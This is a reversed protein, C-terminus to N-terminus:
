ALLDKLSYLGPGKQLLMHASDLAGSAFTQRSLAEHCLEIKEDGSSFVIQHKGVVAGQRISQIQVPQKCISALALATGSPADKKHVHHTETMHISFNKKLKESLIEVAHLCAAIGISFNASYVIPSEKSASKILAFEEESLGTTGIVLPKRHTKNEEILHAVASPTSFDIIIDCAQIFPIISDYPTYLAIGATTKNKKYGAINSFLPDNKALSLVHDGMRGSIGHIGLTLSM